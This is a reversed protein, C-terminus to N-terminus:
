DRRKRGATPLTFRFTAGGNENQEVWITGDHAEVISRSISLGMGMGEAKTTHFPDFVREVQDAPVGGGADHVALEIMPRRRATAITLTRKRAAADRMAEIGNRVLNVVVQQIQIPDALVRPLRNALKLRVRVDHHRADPAILTQVDRALDNLQIAERQAGRRRLFDRLRRIVEGARETQRRVERMAVQLENRSKRSNLLELGAEVYNLIACLPQNLEHALGSAMEGMTALRAVHALQDLQERARDESRAREIALAALRAAAAVTQLAPRSPQWQNACHLSLTGLVAEGTGRIPEAWSSGTWHGAPKSAPGNAPEVRRAAASAGDSHLAAPDGTGIGNLQIAAGSSARADALRFRCRADPVLAEVSRRLAELVEDLPTGTAILELVGNEATLLSQIRRRQEVQRHLRQNAVSLEETRQAVRERLLEEGRKRETVDICSGVYGALGGEVTRLPVGADRVWRFEDDSRRLRYEVEFPAGAGVAGRFADLYVTLEDPHIGEMWGDSREQEM